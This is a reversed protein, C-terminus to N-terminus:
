VVGAHRPDWNSAGVISQATLDTSLKVEAASLIAPCIQPLITRHLTFITLKKLRLDEMALISRLITEVRESGLETEGAILTDLRAAAMALTDVSVAALSNGYVDLHRLKLDGAEMIAMFIATLQESTLQCDMLVCEKLGVVATLLSASLSSLDTPRFRLKELGPLDGTKLNKLVEGVLRIRNHHSLDDNIKIEPVIRALQCDLVGSLNERTIRLRAWRWWKPKEIVSKWVRFHRSM